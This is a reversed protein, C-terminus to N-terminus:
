IKDKEITDWVVTAILSENGGGACYRTQWPQGYDCEGGGQNAKTMLTHTIIIFDSGNCYFRHKTFGTGLPIRDCGFVNEPASM